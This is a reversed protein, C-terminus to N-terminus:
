SEDQSNYKDLHGAAATLGLDMHFYRFPVEQVVQSSPSLAHAYKERNSAVTNSLKYRNSIVLSPLL